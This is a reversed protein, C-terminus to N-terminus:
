QHWIFYTATNEVTQWYRKRTRSWMRCPWVLRINSSDWVATKQWTNVKGSLEGGNDSLWNGLEKDTRDRHPRFRCDPSSHLLKKDLCTMAVPNQERTSVMLYEGDSRYLHATPKYLCHCQVYNRIGTPKKPSIIVKIGIVNSKNCRIEAVQKTQCWIIDSPWSISSPKITGKRIM